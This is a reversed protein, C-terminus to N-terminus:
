RPHKTFNMFNSHGLQFGHGLRFKRELASFDLLTWQPYFSAKELMLSDLNWSQVNEFIEHGSSSPFPAPSFRSLFLTLNNRSVRSARSSTALSDSSSFRQSDLFNYSINQKLFTVTFIRDCCHSSKVDFVLCDAEWAALGCNCRIM